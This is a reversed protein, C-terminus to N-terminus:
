KEKVEKYYFLGCCIKNKDPIESNMSICYDEAKEKKRFYGKIDKTGHEIKIILYINTNDSERVGYAISYHHRVIKIIDESISLTNNVNLAGLEVNYSVKDIKRKTRSYTVILVKNNESGWPYRGSRRPVGEQQIHETNGPYSTQTKLKSVLQVDLLEDNESAKLLMKQLLDKKEENSM